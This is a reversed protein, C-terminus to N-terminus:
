VSEAFPEIETFVKLSKSSQHEPKSLIQEAQFFIFFVMFCFYWIIGSTLFLIITRISKSSM